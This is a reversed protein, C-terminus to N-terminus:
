DSKQETYYWTGSGHKERAIAEARSEPPPHLSKQGPQWSEPLSVDNDAAVQLASVVRLIEDVSRGVSAPYHITAQIVGTPNIIFVSRVTMTSESSDDIMGYSRSITMSIDEVIPFSIEVGFNNELDKLWALHSYLSDVSLGLLECGISRFNEANREFAVFESTCVPTFDAPHAFFVLWKGLFQSLQIEGHTSRASFGPAVTHMSAIANVSDRDAEENIQTM